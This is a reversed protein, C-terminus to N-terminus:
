EVPYATVVVLVNEQIDPEVVVEWSHGAHHTEVVWRAPEYNAHYGSAEEMMLRLDAENFGRDAMRKALHPSLELGWSWWEPWEIM